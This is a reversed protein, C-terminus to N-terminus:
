PDISEYAAYVVPAPRAPAIVVPPAVPYGVSYYPWGYGVAGGLLAGGLLGAGFGAGFGRGGGFRRRIPPGIDESLMESLSGKGVTTPPNAPGAADRAEANEGNLLASIRAHGKTTAYLRGNLLVHDEGIRVVEGLLSDNPDMVRYEGCDATDYAGGNRVSALSKRASKVSRPARPDYAVAYEVFQDSSGREVLRLTGKSQDYRVELTLPAAKGATAAALAPSVLYLVAGKGPAAAAADRGQNRLWVLLEELQVTLPLKQQRASACYREYAAYPLPDAPPHSLYENCDENFLTAPAMDANEARSLHEVVLQLLDGVFGRVDLRSGRTVDGTVFHQVGANTGFAMSVGMAPVMLTMTTHSGRTHGVRLLVRLDMDGVRVPVHHWGYGAYIREARSVNVRPLLTHPLFAFRKKSKISHWSKSKKSKKQKGETRYTETGYCRRREPTKVRWPNRDSLLTAVDDIRAVLGRAFGQMPAEGAWLAEFKVSRPELEPALRGVLDGASVPYQATALGLQKLTDVVEASMSLAPSARWDPLAYRLVLLDLASEHYKAGPAFLPVVGTAILRGVALELAAPNGAERLVLIAEEAGISPPLSDPLGSCHNALQWLSPIAGYGCASYVEKLAGLVNTAGSAELLREMLAPNHLDVLPEDRFLECRQVYDIVGLLSLPETCHAMRYLSDDGNGSACLPKDGVHGVLRFRHGELKGVRAQVLRDIAESLGGPVRVVREERDSEYANPPPLSADSAFIRHPHACHLRNDAVRRPAPRLNLTLVARRLKVCGKAAKTKGALQLEHVPLNNEVCSERRAEAQLWVRLLGKGQQYPWAYAGQAETRMVEPEDESPNADLRYVGNLPVRLSRAGGPPEFVAQVEEENVQTVKVLRMAAVSAGPAGITLSIRQQSPDAVARVARLTVLNMYGPDGQIVPYRKKAAVVIAREVAERRSLQPERAQNAVILGGLFQEM